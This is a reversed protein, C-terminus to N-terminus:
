LTFTAVVFLLFSHFYIFGQHLTVFCVDKPVFCWIKYKESFFIDQLCPTSRFWHTLPKMAKGTTHHTLNDALKNGPGIFDESTQEVECRIMQGFLFFVAMMPVLARKCHRTYFSSFVAQVTLTVFYSTNKMEQTIDCNLWQLFIFWFYYIAPNPVDTFVERLAFFFFIKLSGM